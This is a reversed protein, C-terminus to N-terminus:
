LLSLVCLAKDMDTFTQEAQSFYATVMEWSFSYDDEDDLEIIQGFIDMNIV